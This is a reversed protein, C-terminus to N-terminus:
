EERLNNMMEKFENYNKLRIERIKDLPPFLIKYKAIVEQERDEMNKQNEHELKEHCDLCHLTRTSADGLFTVAIANKKSVLNNCIECMVENDNM